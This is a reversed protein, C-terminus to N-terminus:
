IEESKTTTNCASVVKVALPSWKGPETQDCGLDHAQVVNSVHGLETDTDLKM